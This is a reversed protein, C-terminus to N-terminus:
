KGGGGSARRFLPFIARNSSWIREAGLALHHRRIEVVPADVFYTTLVDEGDPLTSVTITGDPFWARVLDLEGLREPVFAFLTPGTLAPRAATAEWPPEIDFVTADPALFAINENGVYSMRPQGLFFLTADPGLRETQRGISTAIVSNTDAYLTIQNPDRFFFHLHWVAIFVTVLGAALMTSTRPLRTFRALAMAIATIGLAGFIVLFPGAAVYRNTAPGGETLALGVVTSWFGIVLGFSSRRWFTATVLGLGIAVPIAMPWGVFPVGPRFLGGPPTSFPLMAANRFQIWLLHAMSLGSIEVERDIWGSAFASVQNIRNWYEDPRSWYYGFQPAFSILTAGVVIIAPLIVSRVSAALAGWTRPLPALVAYGVYAIALPFLLRNGPHFYQAIGIVLGAILSDTRRRGVLGRDLFLLALPFFLMPAIANQTNRSWFIAFSNTAALTAAILATAMGFHHRTLAYVALVAATGLLASQGRAGAINDGAIAMVGAQTIFLLSPYGGTASAFPNSLNGRLVSRAAMGFMGEDGTVVRPYSTLAVTRCIFAVLAIGSIMAAEARHGQVRQFADSLASRRVPAVVAITLAAIAAIWLGVLEFSADDLARRQTQRWLVAAAGAVFAVLVWRWYGRLARETSPAAAPYASRPLRACVAIVLALGILWPVYAM